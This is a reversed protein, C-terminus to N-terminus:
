PPRGAFVLAAELVILNGAPGRLWAVFRAGDEIGRRSRALRGGGCSREAVFAITAARDAPRDSDPVPAVRETIAGCDSRARLLWRAVARQGRRREEKRVCAALSRQRRRIGRWRSHPDRVRCMTAGQEDGFGHVGRM